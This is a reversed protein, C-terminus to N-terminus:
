GPPFGKVSNVDVGDLRGSLDELFEMKKEKTPVVNVYYEGDLIERYKGIERGDPHKPRDNIMANKHGPMYPMAVEKDLGYEGFLVALADAYVDIQRNSQFPHTEGDPGEVVLAYASDPDPEFRVQKGGKEVTGKADISKIYMLPNGDEDKGYEVGEFDAEPLSDLRHEQPDTWDIDDTYPDYQVAKWMVRKDDRLQIAWTGEPVDTRKPKTATAKAVAMAFAMKYCLM